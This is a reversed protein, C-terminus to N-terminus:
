DNKMVLQLFFWEFNWKYSFTRKPFFVHLVLTFYHKHSSQHQKSGKPWIRSILVHANFWVKKHEEYIQKTILNRDLREEVWEKFHKSICPAQFSMCSIWDLDLAGHNIHWGGVHTGHPVMCSKYCRSIEVVEEGFIQLTIMNTQNRICHIMTTTKQVLTANTGVFVSFLNFMWKMYQICRWNIRFLISTSILYSGYSWSFKAKVEKRTSWIVMHSM